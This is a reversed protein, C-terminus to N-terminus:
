HQQSVHGLQYRSFSQCIHQQSDGAIIDATTLFLDESPYQKIYHPQSKKNQSLPHVTLYKM